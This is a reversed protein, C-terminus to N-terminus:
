SRWNRTRYVRMFRSTLRRSASTSRAGTIAIWAPSVLVCRWPTNQPFSPLKATPISAFAEHQWVLSEIGPEGRAAALLLRRVFRILQPEIRLTFSLLTLIQWVLSDTDATSLAPADADGSTEWPLITWYRSLERPCAARRCPVVALPQVDLDRLRRGREAWLDVLGSGSAALTGLDSLAVVASGPPPPQYDVTHRGVKMSAPELRGEPLVIQSFGEPPYIDRIALCARTQDEWYPILRRSRDVFVQVSRGWSKRSSRPLAALFRGRGWEEVIRGVDIEGSIAQTPSAARLRTLLSANSSLPLFSLDVPKRQRKKTSRKDTPPAVGGAIEGTETAPRVRIEFHTGQWFPIDRAVSASTPAPPAQPPEAIMDVRPEITRPEPAVFRYGLLGAVYEELEPDALRRARILDARGTVGRAFGIGSM